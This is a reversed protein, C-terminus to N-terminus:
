GITESDDVGSGRDGSGDCAHSEARSSRSRFQVLRLAFVICGLPKGVEQQLREDVPNAQSDTDAHHSESAGCDVVFKKPDLNGIVPARETSVVEAPSYRREGEPTARHVKILQTFDDRDSL